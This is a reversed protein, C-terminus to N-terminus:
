TAAFGAGVVSDSFSLETVIEFSVIFILWNLIRFIAALPYYVYTLSM